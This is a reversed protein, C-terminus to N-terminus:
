YVMEGRLFKVTEEREPREFFRTKEAVEVLRGQLLLGVRDAMRKAQLFNHSAMLLTAGTEARFRLVAEELLAVNAPDLNATFEDLLLLRPRLVIARAFAVRQAEGGSLGRARSRARGGLGVADLAARVRVEIEGEPHGRFRLGYAVNDFVSGRFLYPRQHLMAIEKRLDGGGHHSVRGGDPFELLSAIRLFTTKGAGSPGVLCFIERSAAEVSVGDLATVAGFRKTVGELAVKLGPTPPTM